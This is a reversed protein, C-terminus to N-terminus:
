NQLLKMTKPICKIIDTANVTYLDNSLEDGIYGHIYAGCVTAMLTSLGQGVLSTIIGLLTDGMGGNAM